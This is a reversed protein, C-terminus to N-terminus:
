YKYRYHGIIKWDFLRDEKNTGAGINHIISYRNTSENWTDSVLGIHLTGRGLDWAVFDGPHYDSADQTIPVATGHRTFYTMLNPVRRHDINSDPKKLGYRQPYASFNGIMDVHIEKQLDIGAGDRLARILVDTCVGSQRPIDGGPYSIRAYGPAYSRTVKTQEEASAIVKKTIASSASAQGDATQSQISGFAVIGASGIRNTVFSGLLLSLAFYSLLTRRHM